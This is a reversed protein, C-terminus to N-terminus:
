ELEKGLPNCEKLVNDFDMKSKSTLSKLGFKKILEMIRTRKYTVEELSYYFITLWTAPHELAVPLLENGVPGMWMNGILNNFVRLDILSAQAEPLNKKISELLEPFSNINDVPTLIEQILSKNVVIFLKAKDLQNTVVEKLEELEYNGKNSLMSFMYFASIVEVTIRERVPLNVINNIVTSIFMAYSIMIPKYSSRLYGLNNNAVIGSLLARNVIFGADTPNRLVSKLETIDEPLYREKALDQNAYQRLDIALSSKMKHNYFFFPHNFLPLDKEDSNLGLIFYLNFNELVYNYNLQEGMLASYKVLGNKLKDTNILRGLTTAYPNIRGEKLDLMINGKYRYIFETLLGMKM